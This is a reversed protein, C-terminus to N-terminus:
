RTQTQRPEARVQGQRHQPQRQKVQKADKWKADPTQDSIYKDAQLGSDTLADFVAKRRADLVHPSLAQVDFSHLEVSSIAPNDVDPHVCISIQNGHVDKLVALFTEREDNGEFTAADLDPTFGQALFAEAHADGITVRSQSGFEQLRAACVAKHLREDLAPIQDTVITRLAEAPMFNTASDVSNVKTILSETEQKVDEWQSRSWFNVDIEIDLPEGKIDIASCRENARISSLLSHLESLALERASQWQSECQELDLRLLHLGEYIDQAHGLATQPSTTILPTAKAFQNKLGRLRDPAFQEHREYNQEIAQSFIRADNLLEQALQRQLQIEAERTAVRHELSSVKSEVKSVRSHVADVKVQMERQLQAIKQQAERKQEQFLRSTKVEFDSLDQRLTNINARVDEVERRHVQAQKRLADVGERIQQRQTNIQESTEREWYRRSESLGELDRQMKRQRANAQDLIPQMAAQTNEEVRRLMEPVDQRIRRLDSERALLDRYQQQDVTVTKKGSM